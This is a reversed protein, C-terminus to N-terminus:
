ERWLLLSKETLRDLDKFSASYSEGHGASKREML